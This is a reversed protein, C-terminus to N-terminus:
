GPWGPSRRSSRRSSAAHQRAAHRRRDRLRHRRRPLDAHRHRDPQEHVALRRHDLRHGPQAAAREPVAVGAPRRRRRRRADGARRLAHRTRRARARAGGRGRDSARGHGTFPASGPSSSATSSCRSSSRSSSADLRHRLLLQRHHRGHRRPRGAPGSRDHGRRARRRVAHDAHQRRVGAVGGRLRRRHRRASTARPQLVRGGGLPILVLYGADSAVSSLIGILVIIYTISWAPAVKVLKRILAAILGSQEAVGVGVMAVLIVGVVGFGNFNAVPSTFLFRIGTAPSCARSRRDDRHRDRLRREYLADETGDAPILDRARGIRGPPQGRGRGPGARRGGPHGVVDFLYLIHSLVIVIACLALFIIAPHPVKDGIREIRTSSGARRPRSSAGADATPRPRREHVGARHLRPRAAAAAPRRLRHLRLPRWPTSVTPSRRAPSTSTPGRCPRRRVGRPVARRHHQRRQRRRPEQHRRRRLRAPRPLPADLPLEWVPEDTATAPRPPGPRHAGADNGMVGAIQEGLARLCAGTLTAIDVIADPEQEAALVLADAMVLRGEADTNIIEVTTGGRVTMVDGLKAATGSPMNDTCMLYGTVAIPCGADRLHLMAALVDGAGSMDNKMTAHVADGPKLSIGGSDYMIGKGVLALHATAGDPATREAQGHAAARRQRRQRRHDRRLRARDAADRDFM